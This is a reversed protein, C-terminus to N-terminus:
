WQLSESVLHTNSRPADMERQKNGRERKESTLVIIPRELEYKLNYDMKIKRIKNPDKRIKFNSASRALLKLDHKRRPIM